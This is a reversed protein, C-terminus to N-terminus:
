SEWLAGAGSGRRRPLRVRQIDDRGGPGKKEPNFLVYLEHAEGSLLTAVIRDMVDFPPIHWVASRASEMSFVWDQTTGPEGDIEYYVPTEILFDQTISQDPWDERISVVPGLEDRKCEVALAYDIFHAYTGNGNVAVSPKGGGVGRTLRAERIEHWTYWPSPQEPASAPESASAPPQTVAPTPTPTSTPTSPPLTVTPVPESGCAAMLCAVALAALTLLAARPSCPTPWRM